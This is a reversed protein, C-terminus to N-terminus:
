LTNPIATVLRVVGDDHKIWIFRVEIVRDNSGTLKIFQEYKQGHQTLQTATARGADFTIQKALNAANSPDFGLAQKFFNAKPGGIPHNANLLYRQLKDTVSAETTAPVNSVPEPNINGSSSGDFNGGGEAQAMMVLDILAWAQSIEQLGRAGAALQAATLSGRIGNAYALQGFLGPGGFGGIGSAAALIDVAAWGYRKARINAGASYLNISVSIATAIQMGTINYEHGSPDTGNVPNAAAYLYKCVSSAFDYDCGRSEGRPELTQDLDAPTSKLPSSFIEGVRTEPRALAWAPTSMPGAVLLCLLLSLIRFPATVIAALTAARHGPPFRSLLLFRRRTLAM